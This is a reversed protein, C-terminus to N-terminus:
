WEEMKEAITYLYTVLNELEKDKIKERFSPMYIPPTPGSENEKAEPNVGTQIKKILEEKTFTAVTKVLDPVRGRNISCPCEARQM